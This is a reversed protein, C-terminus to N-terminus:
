DTMVRVSASVRGAYGGLDVVVHWRGARPIKLIVPSERYYGGYQRYNRNSKFNSYNISDLLRINAANGLTVEVLTEAQQYGIDNQLFEM